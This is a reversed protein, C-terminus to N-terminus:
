EWPQSGNCLAPHRHSSPSAFALPLQAHWHSATWDQTQSLSCSKSSHCASFLYFSSDTLRSQRQPPFRITYLLSLVPVRHGPRENASAIRKKVWAVRCDIYTCRRRVGTIGSGWASLHGIDHVVAEMKGSRVIGRKTHESTRRTRGDSASVEKGCITESDDV